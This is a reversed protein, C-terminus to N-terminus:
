CSTSWNRNSVIVQSPYQQVKPFWKKSKDEPDPVNALKKDIANKFKDIDAAGKMFM